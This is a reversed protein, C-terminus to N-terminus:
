VVSSQGSSADIEAVKPIRPYELARYPVAERISTQFSRVMKSFQTDNLAIIPLTPIDPITTFNRAALTTFGKRMAEVDDSTEAILDELLSIANVRHETLSSSNNSYITRKSPTSLVEIESDSDTISDPDDSSASRFRKKSNSKSASEPTAPGSAALNQRQRARKEVLALSAKATSRRQNAGVPEKSVIAGDQSRISSM